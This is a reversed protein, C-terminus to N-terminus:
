YRVGEQHVLCCGEGPLVEGVCSPFDLCPPTSCYTSSVYPMLHCRSSLRLFYSVRVLAATAVDIVEQRLDESMDASKVEVRRSAVDSMVIGPTPLLLIQSSLSTQGCRTQLKPSIEVHVLYRCLFNSGSCDLTGHTLEPSRRRKRTCSRIVDGRCENSPYSSVSDQAHADKKRFRKTIPSTLRVVRGNSCM